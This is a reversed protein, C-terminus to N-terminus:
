LDESYEGYDFYENRSFRGAIGPEQERFRLRDTRSRNYEAEDGFFNEDDFDEERFWMNEPLNVDDDEEDEYFDEDEDFDEGDFINQDRENRLGEYRRQYRREDENMERQHGVTDQDNDDLLNDNDNYFWADEDFQPEEQYRESRDQRHLQQYEHHDQYVVKRSRQSNLFASEEERDHEYIREQNAKFIDYKDDAESALVKFEIDDRTTLQLWEGFKPEAKSIGDLLRCKLISATTEAIAVDDKVIKKWTIRLAVAYERITQKKKRWEMSYFEQILLNIPKEKHFIEILEKKLKSYNTQTEEDLNDAMELAQGRLSAILEESKEKADLNAGGVANEFLYLHDMITKGNNDSSDWSPIKKISMRSLVKSLEEVGGNTAEQSENNKDGM